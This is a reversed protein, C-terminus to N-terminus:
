GFFYRSVLFEIATISLSTCFVGTKLLYDLRFDVHRKRITPRYQADYDVNPLNQDHSSVHTSSQHEGASPRPAETVGPSSVGSAAAPMERSADPVDDCDGDGGPDQFVTDDDPGSFVANVDLDQYEPAEKPGPNAGFGQLPM